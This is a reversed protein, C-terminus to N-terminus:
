YECSAQWMNWRGMALMQARMMRWPGGFLWFTHTAMAVPVLCTEVYVCKCTRLLSIDSKAHFGSGPRCYVRDPAYPRTPDAHPALSYEFVATRVEGPLVSFLVCGAQADANSLDITAPQSKSFGRHTLPSRTGRMREPKGPNAACLNGTQHQAPSPNTQGDSDLRASVPVQYTALFTAPGCNIGPPWGADAGWGLV